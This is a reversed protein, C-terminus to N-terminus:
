ARADHHGAGAQVQVVHQALLVEVRVAKVLVLGARAHRADDRRGTSRSPRGSIARPEAPEFQCREAIRCVTRATTSSPSLASSGDRARPQVHLVVHHVRLGPDVGRRQVRQLFPAPLDAAPALRVQEEAAHLGHGAVRLAARHRAAAIGAAAPDRGDDLLRGRFRQGPPARTRDAHRGRGAGQRGPDGVRTAPRGHLLPRPGQFGGAGRAHEGRGARRRPGQVRVRAATRGTVGFVFLDGDCTPLSTAVGLRAPRGAFEDFCYEGGELRFRVSVCPEEIQGRRGAIRWWEGAPGRGKAVFGTREQPIFSALATVNLGDRHELVCWKARRSIDRRFAFTASLARAPWRDNVIVVNKRPRGFSTGCAVRVRKGEIDKRRAQLFTVTLAKGDLTFRVGNDRDVRVRTAASAAPACAGVIALTVPAALARREAM